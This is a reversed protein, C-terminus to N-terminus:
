PKDEIRYNLVLPEMQNGAFDKAKVVVKFEKGYFYATSHPYIKAPMDSYEWAHFRGVISAGLDVNAQPKSEFDWALSSVQPCSAYNEATVRVVIKNQFGYDTSDSLEQRNTYEVIYGFTLYFDQELIKNCENEAHVTFVTSGELSIYDDNPGYFMRYGDEIGYFTVPVRLDDVMFYTGSISVPCEDDTIDVSIFGSATTYEGIGLSFNSIKLSLLDIDMTLYKEQKITSYIDTEIYGIRGSITETEINLYDNNVITCYTDFSISYTAMDASIIDMYCPDVNGSITTVEARYGSNYGMITSYVDCYVPFGVWGAFSIDVITNLWARHFDSFEKGYETVFSYDSYYFPIPTDDDDLNGSFDVYNVWYDKTIYKPPVYQSTSRITVFELMERGATFIIRKDLTGSIQNYGTTYIVPKNLTGSNITYDTSFDVLSVLVGDMKPPEFARYGTAINSIGSITNLQQYYTAITNIKETTTEVQRYIIPMSYMGIVDASALKLQVGTDKVESAPEIFTTDIWTNNTSDPM